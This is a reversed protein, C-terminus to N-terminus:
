ADGLWLEAIDEGLWEIEEIRHPLRQRGVWGLEVEVTITDGVGFSGFQANPHDVVRVGDIRFRRMRRKLEAQALRALVAQKTVHKADLVVPKSRRSDKGPITYRLSARGEGAGIAVIKNAYKASDDEIVSKDIINDGEIFSLGAQDRGVRSMVRIEKLVKTRDPNWGSWEVWECGAADIAEQMADLCDPTDWWLLKWAGDDEQVAKKASALEEDQRKKTANLSDVQSKRTNM